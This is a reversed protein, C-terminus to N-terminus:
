EKREKVQYKSIIKALEYHIKTQPKDLTYVTLLQLKQQLEIQTKTDRM